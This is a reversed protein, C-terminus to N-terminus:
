ALVAHLDLIRRSMASSITAGRKWRSVMAADVDLLRATPNHGYAAIMQALLPRVDALAGANRPEAFPDILPSWRRDSMDCNYDVRVKSDVFNTSWVRHMKDFGM